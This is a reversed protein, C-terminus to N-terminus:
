HRNTTVEDVQGRSGSRVTNGAHWPCHLSILVRTRGVRGVAGVVTQRTFKADFCAMILERSNIQFQVLACRPWRWSCVFCVTHGSHLGCCCIKIHKGKQALLARLLSQSQSQSENASQKATVFLSVYHWTAAIPIAPPPLLSFFIKILRKVWTGCSQRLSPRPNGAARSDCVNTQGWGSRSGWGLGCACVLGARLCAGLGGWDPILASAVHSHLKPSDEIQPM